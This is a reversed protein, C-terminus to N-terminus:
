KANNELNVWRTAHTLSENWKIFSCYQVISGSLKKVDILYIMQDECCAPSTPGKTITIFYMNFNYIYKHYYYHNDKLLQIGPMTGLVKCENM